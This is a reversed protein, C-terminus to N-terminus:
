PATELGQLVARRVEDIPRSADVPRLLGKERYYGILPATRERYIQLRKRVTEPADDARQLLEGGDRDCVGAVAPPNFELHYVAGCTKCVRRGSLRDVIVEDPCELLVVGGLRAELSQLMRDFAEAQALTRPFGDFLFRHGPRPPDFLGRVMGVVIEDPVFRGQAMREKAALGLETGLRIQERLLDGTSVHEYGKQALTEAVTGKGAGPPGLLVVATM